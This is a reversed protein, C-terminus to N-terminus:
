RAMAAGMPPHQMCHRTYRCAWWQRAQAPVTAERGSVTFVHCVTRLNSGGHKLLSNLAANVSSNRTDKAQKKQDAILECWSHSPPTQQCGAAHGGEQSPSGAPAAIMANAKPRASSMVLCSLWGSSTKDKGFSLKTACLCDNARFVFTRM